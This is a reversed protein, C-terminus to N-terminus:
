AGLEEKIQMGTHQSSNDKKLRLLECAITGARVGEPAGARNGWRGGRSPPGHGLSHSGPGCGTM